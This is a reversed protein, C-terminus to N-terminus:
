PARATGQKATPTPTLAGGWEGGSTEKHCDEDHLLVDKAVMMMMQHWTSEDDNHHEKGDVMM